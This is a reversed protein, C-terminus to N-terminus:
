CKCASTVLGCRQCSKRPDARLDQKPRRADYSFDLMAAYMSKVVGDYTKRVALTNDGKTEYPHPRALRKRMDEVDVAFCDKRRAAQRADVAVNSVRAMVGRQEAAAARTELLAQRGKALLTRRVDKVKWRARQQRVAKSRQQAFAQACRLMENRRHRELQATRRAHIAAMEAEYDDHEYQLLEVDRQLADCQLAKSEREQASMAIMNALQSIESEYAERWPLAQESDDDGLQALEHEVEPLRREMERRAVKIKDCWRRTKTLYLLAHQREAAVDHMDRAVEDEELALLELEILHLQRQLARERAAAARAEAFARWHRQLVRAAWLRRGDREQSAAV